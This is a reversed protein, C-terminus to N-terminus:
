LKQIRVLVTYRQEIPFTASDNFTTGIAAISELNEGLEANGTTVVLRGAGSTSTNGGVNYGAQSLHSSNNGGQYGPVGTGISGGFGVSVRDRMDVTGNQGNCMAWGLRLNTGLGTGTFNASIYAPTCIIEKTDGPLDNSGLRNFLYRTRNVLAKLPLTLIGGPGAEAPDTTEWQYVGSTFEDVEPLNAM